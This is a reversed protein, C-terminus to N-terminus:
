AGLYKSRGYLIHFNGGIGNVEKDSGGKAQLQPDKM